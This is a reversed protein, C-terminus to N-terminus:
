VIHGASRRRDQGHVRARRPRGRPRVARPVPLRGTVPCSAHQMQLMARPPWKTPSMGDIGDIRRITQLQRPIETTHQRVGWTPGRGLSSSGASTSLGGAGTAPPRKKPRRSASYSDDSSDGDVPHRGSFPCSAHYIRLM